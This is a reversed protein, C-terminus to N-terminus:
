LEDRRKAGHKLLLEKMQFFPKLEQDDVGEVNKLGEELFDEVLDLVTMHGNSDASIESLKDMLLNPDAGAELLLKVTEVHGGFVHWSLAHMQVGGEDDAHLMDSRLDPNAGAELLVKTVDVHGLMGAVHLCTEGDPSPESAWEPHSELVSKVQDASGDACAQLYLLFQASHEAASLFSSLTTGLLLLIPRCLLLKMM